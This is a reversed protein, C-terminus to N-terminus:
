FSLKLGVSYTRALPYVGWDFGPLLNSGKSSVEPNYGEYDTITFLNDVSAYLRLSSVKM